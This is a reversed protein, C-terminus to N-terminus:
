TIEILNYFSLDHGCVECLKDPAASSCHINGCVSCLYFQGSMDKGSTVASLAQKLLRHHMKESESAWRISLMAIKASFDNGHRNRIQKYFSPYMTHFEQYEATIASRINDSTSSEATDPFDIATDASFGNKYLARKHNAIHISEARSLATFLTAVGNLGEEGAKGAYRKYRKEAESEGAIADLLLKHILEM